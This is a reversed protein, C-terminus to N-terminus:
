GSPTDKENAAKRHGLELGVQHILARRANGESVRLEVLTRRPNPEGPEVTALGAEIANIEGVVLVMQTVLDRWAKMRAKVQETGYANVFTEVHVQEHMEPLEPAPGTQDDFLPYVLQSWLSVRESMLLLEHYASELRQEVRQAKATEDAHERGKKGTRWTVFGNVAGVLVVTTSTAVPTVWEWAV